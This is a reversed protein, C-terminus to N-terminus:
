GRERMATVPDPAMPRRGSMEDGADNALRSFPLFSLLTILGVVAFAPWFAGATIV